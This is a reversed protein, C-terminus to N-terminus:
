EPIYKSTTSTIRVRSQLFACLIINSKSILSYPDFIHRFMTASIIAQNLSEINKNFEEKMSEFNSTMADVRAFTDAVKESESKAAKNEQNPDQAM